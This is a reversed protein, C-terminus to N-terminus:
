YSRNIKGPDVKDTKIPLPPDFEIKRIMRAVDSIGAVDSKM